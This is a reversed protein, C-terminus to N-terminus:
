TSFNYTGPFLYVKRTTDRPNPFWFQQEEGSQQIGCESILTKNGCDFSVGHILFGNDEMKEIIESLLKKTMNVDFDPFSFKKLIYTNTLM